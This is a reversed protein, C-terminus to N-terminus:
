YFYIFLYGLMMKTIPHFETAPSPSREINKHGGSWYLRKEEQLEATLYATIENLKSKFREPDLFMDVQLNFYDNAEM